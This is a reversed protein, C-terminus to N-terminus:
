KLTFSTMLTSASRLGDGENKKLKLAMHYHYLNMLEDACQTDENIHAELSVVWHEIELGSTTWAELVADAFSKRTPFKQTDARSYTVIYVM